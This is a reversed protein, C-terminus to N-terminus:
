HHGKVGDAQQGTLTQCISLVFTALHALDETAVVFVCFPYIWMSPDATHSISPCVSLHVSLCVSLKFVNGTLATQDKGKSLRKM